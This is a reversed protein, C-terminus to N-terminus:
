KRRLGAKAFAPALNAYSRRAATAPDYDAKNSIQGSVEVVIPGKYGSEKLLAFYAAYDTGGDGPLLFEFKEPQGRSDKVHIFVSQPVLAQVTAALPLGRLAFHSYDFALRLWPSNVEKVLWRAADPTHLANAVHPKVALVTKGDAAVAAWARLREALRDRVQEWLGPKGGLITEIVPPADPALAQGLEIAAKLRELNARHVADAAPEALNEMLGLLQLGSDTLQQRLAKRDAASLGKPETPWGPMLALEVGEYGIAACTRLADDTRVSKMGYLSFGFPVAPGRPVEEGLTPGSPRALSAVFAAQLWQRRSLIAM